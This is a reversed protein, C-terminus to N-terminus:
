IFCVYKAKRNVKDKYERCKTKTTGKVLIKDQYRQKKTKKYHITLLAPLPTPPNAKVLIPPPSASQVRILELILLWTGM